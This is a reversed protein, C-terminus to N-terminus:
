LWWMSIVKVHLQLYRSWCQKVITFSPLNNNCELRYQIIGLVMLLEHYFVPVNMLNLKFPFQYLLTWLYLWVDLVFKSQILILINTSRMWLVSILFSSLNDHSVWLFNWLSMKNWIKYLKILLKIRGRCVYIHTHTYRTSKTMLIHTGYRWIIQM